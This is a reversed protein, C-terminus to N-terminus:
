KLRERDRRGGTKTKNENDTKSMCCNEWWLVGAGMIVLHFPCCSAYNLRITHMKREKKQLKITTKRQM